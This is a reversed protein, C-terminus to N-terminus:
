KSLYIYGSLKTDSDAITLLYYYTGSLLEKGNFHGVNAIGGWNNKYDEEEFVLAGWQSFIQIKMKTYADLDPIRFVDNLGDGNPSMGNPVLLKSKDDSTRVDFFVVATDADGQEDVVKYVLTDLGVFHLNFTPTITNKSNVVTTGNRLDSLISVTIPFDYVDIDNALVNFEFVTNLENKMLITDNVAIPKFDYFIVEIAVSASSCGGSNACVKYELKDVGLFNQNPTYLLKNNPLVVVTGFKPKVIIEISAVGSILGFDNNLIPIEQPKNRYLKAVDGNAFVDSSEQGPVLPFAVINSVCFFSVTLFFLFFRKFM